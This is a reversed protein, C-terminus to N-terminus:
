KCPNVNGYAPQPAVIVDGAQGLLGGFFSAWAGGEAGIGVNLGAAFDSVALGLPGVIGAGALGGVVAGVGAGTIGGVLASQGIESWSGGTVWAGIAGSISGGVGGAIAGGVAGGVVTAFEGNPDVFMVPNNQVYTYVNVGGTLGIPDPMLYRGLKPDYYRWYNYHLGTEPDFYQGPLRLNNTVTNLTVDAQGFPLYDASWVVAGGTNTMRQPTGLHDNHYYYVANNADIQALPEGNLYVYAKILTGDATTEAILHGSLDYHYVTTQGNITKTLRQGDYTTTYEPTAPAPPAGGAIIARGIMNGRSDHDFNVSQTGSISDLRNTGPVYSYTDTGSSSTASRRNGTRDYLFGQAGYIGSASTLQNRGDYGFSQSRASSLQDTIAAINGASDPTYTRQLVAGDTISAIQYNQDFGKAQAMGNGLTM